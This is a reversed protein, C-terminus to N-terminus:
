KMVDFFYEITKSSWWKHRILSKLCPGSWSSHFESLSTYNAVETHYDNMKNKLIQGGLCNTLYRRPGVQTTWSWRQGTRHWRCAAKFLKTLLCPVLLFPYTVFWFLQSDSLQPLAGGGGFLFFSKLRPRTHTRTASVPIILRTQNNDALCENDECLWTM